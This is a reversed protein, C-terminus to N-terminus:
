QIRYLEHPVVRNRWPCKHGLCTPVRAFYYYYFFLIPDPNPRYDREQEGRVRESESHFSTVSTQSQHVDFFVISFLLFLVISPLAMQYTGQPHATEVKPTHTHTHTWTTDQTGAKKRKKWLAVEDRDKTAHGRHQCICAFFLTNTTYDSLSAFGQAKSQGLDLLRVFLSPSLLIDMM